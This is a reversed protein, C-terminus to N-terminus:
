LGALKDELWQRSDEPSLTLGWAQDMRQQIAPFAAPDEQRTPLDEDNREPDREETFIAVRGNLHTFVTHGLHSNLEHEAERPLVRVDVYPYQQETALIGRIQDAIIATDIRGSRIKQDFSLERFIQQQQAKSALLFERRAFRFEVGPLPNEDDLYPKMVAHAFAPTQLPGSCFANSSPLFRVSSNEDADLVEATMARLGAAFPQAMAMMDEQTRPYNFGDPVGYVNEYTGTMM